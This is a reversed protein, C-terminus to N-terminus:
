KVEVRVTEKAKRAAMMGGINLHWVFAVPVLILAIALVLAVIVLEEM